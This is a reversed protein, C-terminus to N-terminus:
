AAVIWLLRISVPTYMVMFNSKQQFARVLAAQLKYKDYEIFHYGLRYIKNRFYTQRKNEIHVTHFSYVFLPARGALTCQAEQLINNNCVNSVSHQYTSQTEYSIM